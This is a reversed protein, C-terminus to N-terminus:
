RLRQDLRRRSAAKDYGTSSCPADLLAMDFLEEVEYKEMRSLQTDAKLKLRALNENLRNLAVKRAIM